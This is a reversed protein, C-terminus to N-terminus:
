KSILRTPQQKAQKPPPPALLLMAKEHLQYHRIWQILYYILIAVSLVLAISSVGIVGSTSHHEVQQYTHITISSVILIWLTFLGGLYQNFVISTISPPLLQFLFYCLVLLTMFTVIINLIYTTMAERLSIGYKQESFANDTLLKSTSSLVIISYILLFLFGLFLVIAFPCQYWPHTHLCDSPSSLSVQTQSPM